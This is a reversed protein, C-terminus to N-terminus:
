NGRNILSKLIAKFNNFINKQIYKNEILILFFQSFQYSTIPVSLIVKEIFFIIWLFM